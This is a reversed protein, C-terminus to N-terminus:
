NMSVEFVNRFSYNGYPKSLYPWSEKRNLYGKPVDIQATFKHCCCCYCVIATNIYTIEEKWEVIIIVFYIIKCTVQSFRANQKFATESATENHKENRM